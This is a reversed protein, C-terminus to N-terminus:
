YKAFLIINKLVVFRQVIHSQNNAGEPSPLRFMGTNSYNM